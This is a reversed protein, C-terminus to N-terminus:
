LHHFPNISHSSYGKPCAIAVVCQRCTFAGPDLNPPTGFTITLLWRAGPNSGTEAHVIEPRLPQLLIPSPGFMGVGQMWADLPYLVIACRVEQSPLAHRAQNVRDM